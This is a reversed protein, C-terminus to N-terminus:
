LVRMQQTVKCFEVFDLIWNELTSSVARSCTCGGENVKVSFGQVTNFSPWKERRSSTQAQSISALSVNISEIMCPFLRLLPCPRGLVDSLGWEGSSICVVASGNQIDLLLFAQTGVGSDTVRMLSFNLQLRLCGDLKM